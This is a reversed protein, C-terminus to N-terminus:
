LMSGAAQAVVSLVIVLVFIWKTDVKMNKGDKNVHILDYNM